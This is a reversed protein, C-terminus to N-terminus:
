PMQPMNHLLRFVLLLTPITALRSHIPLPMQISSKYHLQERAQRPQSPLPQPLPPPARHQQQCPRLRTSKATDDDLSNTSSYLTEVTTTQRANRKVHEHFTNNVEIPNWQKASSEPIVVNLVSWKSLQVAAPSFQFSRCSISNVALTSTLCLQSSLICSGVMM